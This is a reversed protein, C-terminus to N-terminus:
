RSWPVGEEGPKTGSSRPVAAARFQPDGSSEPSSFPSSDECQNGELGLGTQAPKWCPSTRWPM